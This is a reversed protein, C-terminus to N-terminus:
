ALHHQWLMSEIYIVNIHVIRKRINSFYIIQIYIKITIKNPTISRGYILFIHNRSHILLYKHRLRHNFHILHFVNGTLLKSAVHDIIECNHHRHRRNYTNTRLFLFIQLLFLFQPLIQLFFIHTRKKLYSITDEPLSHINRPSGSALNRRKCVTHCSPNHAKILFLNWSIFLLFRYIAYLILTNCQDPYFPM